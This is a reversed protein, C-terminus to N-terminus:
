FWISAEWREAGERRGVWKGISRSSEEGTQCGNSDLVPEHHRCSSFGWETSLAFLSILPNTLREMTGHIWATYHSMETLSSLPAAAWFLGPKVCLQQICDVNLGVYLTRSGIHLLQPLDPYHSTRHWIRGAAGRNRSFCALQCWNLSETIRKPGNELMYLVNLLELEQLAETEYWQLSFEHNPSNSFLVDGQARHSCHANRLIRFSLYQNFFFLQFSNWYQCCEKTALIM